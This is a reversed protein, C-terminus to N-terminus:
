INHFCPFSPLSSLFISGRILHKCSSLFSSQLYHEARPAWSLLTERTKVDVMDWSVEALFHQRTLTTVMKTLTDWANVFLEGDYKDGYFLCPLRYPSPIQGLATEVTVPSPHEGAAPITPVPLGEATATASPGM